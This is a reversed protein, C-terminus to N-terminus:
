KLMDNIKNDIDRAIEDATRNIKDNVEDAMKNIRDEFSETKQSNEDAADQFEKMRSRVTYTSYFESIAYLVLGIGFLIFLWIGAKNPFCFLIVGIIVTIVPGIYVSLPIQVLKGTRVLYVIDGLGFILLILGFVFMIFNIFFSPFVLLVIGFAIDVISNLMLLPLKEKKWKGTYALIINVIGIVLILVGLIYMSYNKVQEPWIILILGGILALIARAYGYSRDFFVNAQKMGNM